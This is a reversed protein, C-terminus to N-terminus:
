LEPTFYKEKRVRLFIAHVLANQTCHYSTDGRRVFAEAQFILSFHPLLGDLHLGDLLPAVCVLLAELLPRVRSNHSDTSAGENRQSFSSTKPTVIQITIERTFKNCNKPKNCRELCNLLGKQSRRYKVFLVPTPNSQLYLLSPEGSLIHIRGMERHRQKSSQTAPKKSSQDM